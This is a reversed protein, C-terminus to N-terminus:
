RQRQRDDKQCGSPLRSVTRDQEIVKELNAEVLPLDQRGCRQGQAALAGGGSDFVIGGSGVGGATHCGTAALWLVIVMGDELCWCRQEPFEFM